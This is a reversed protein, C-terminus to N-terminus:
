LNIFFKNTFEGFEILMKIIILYGIRSYDIEHSSPAGAFVYFVKSFRASFSNFNGTALFLAM